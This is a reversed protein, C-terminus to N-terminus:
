PICRESGGCYNGEQTFEQWDYCLEYERDCSRCRAMIKGGTSWLEHPFDPHDEPDIIEPEKPKAQEALWQDFSKPM